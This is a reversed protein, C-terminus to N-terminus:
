YADFVGQSHRRSFRAGNGFDIQYSLSAVTHDLNTRGVTLALKTSNQFRYDVGATVISKAGTPLGSETHAGGFVGFGNWNSPAYALEMGFRNGDFAAARDDRYAGYIEAHFPGSDYAAEAGYYFYNGPRQDEGFVFAGVAWTENPAYFVHVGASPQTSTVNEYKGVSMDFQLGLGNGFVTGLSTAGHKFNRSLGTNRGLEFTLNGNLTNQAQVPTSAAAMAALSIAALGLTYRTM